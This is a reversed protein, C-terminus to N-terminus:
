GSGKIRSQPIEGSKATAGAMRFKKNGRAAVGAMAMTVVLGEDIEMATMVAMPFILEGAWRGM